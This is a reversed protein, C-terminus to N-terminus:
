ANNSNDRSVPKALNLEIIKDTLWSFGEKLGMGEQVGKCASEQLHVLAKPNKLTINDSLGLENILDEVKLSNPIDQKNCYVVMPVKAAHEDNLIQWLEERVDPIRHKDSADLVFIVGETTSFYYKWVNRM